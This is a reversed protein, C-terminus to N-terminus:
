FHLLGPPRKACARHLFSVPLCQSLLFFLKNPSSKTWMTENKGQEEEIEKPTDMM